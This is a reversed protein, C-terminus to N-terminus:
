HGEPCDPHQHYENGLIMLLLLPFSIGGQLTRSGLDALHLIIIDKVQDEKTPM